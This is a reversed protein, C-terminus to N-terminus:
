GESGEGAPTAPQDEPKVDFDYGEKTFHKDTVVEFEGSCGAPYDHNDNKCYDSYKCKLHSPFESDDDITPIYDDCTVTKKVVAGEFKM